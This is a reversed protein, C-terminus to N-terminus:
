LMGKYDRFFLVCKTFALLTNEYVLEVLIQALILPVINEFYNLHHHIIDIANKIHIIIREMWIHM